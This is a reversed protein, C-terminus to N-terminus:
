SGSFIEPWKPIASCSPRWRPFDHWLTIEGHPLRSTLFSQAPLLVVPEGLSSVLQCPTLARVPAPVSSAPTVVLTLRWEAARGVWALRLSEFDHGPEQVGAMSVKGVVATAAASFLAGEGLDWTLRSADGSINRLPQGYAPEISIDVATVPRLARVDYAISLSGDTEVGAIRTINVEGWVFSHAISLNGEQELLVPGYTHPADRLRLTWNADDAHVGFITEADDVTLIERLRGDVSSFLIVQRWTESGTLGVGTREGWLVPGGAKLLAAADGSASHGLPPIPEEMITAPGNLLRLASALEGSRSTNLAYPDNLIVTRNRTASLAHYLHAEEPSVQFSFLNPRLFFDERPECTPKRVTIKSNAFVDEGPNRLALTSDTLLYLYDVRHKMLVTCPTTPAPEELVGSSMQVRIEGHLERAPAAPRYSVGPLGYQPDRLFGELGLDGSAVYSIEVAEGGATHRVRVGREDQAVSEFPSAFSAWIWGQLDEIPVTGRASFRITLDEGEEIIVSRVVEVEPWHFITSVEVRQETESLVAFKVPADFLRRTAGGFTIFDGADSTFMTEEHVTGFRAHFIQNQSSRNLNLTYWASGSDVTYGHAAVKKADEVEAIQDRFTLLFPSGSLMAERGAFGQIWWAYHYGLARGSEFGTALPLYKADPPLDDRLFELAELDSEDQYTYFSYAADLHPGFALSVFVVAAMPGMVRPDVLSRPIAPAAGVSTDLLVALGLLAPITAFYPMRAPLNQVSALLYYDLLFGFATAALLGATGEARRQVLRITSFALLSVVGAIVLPAAMRHVYTFGDYFTKFSQESGIGATTANTIYGWYAPLYPVSFVAALGGILLLRTPLKRAGWWSILFYATGVTVLFFSTLHHTGITLSTCLAVGAFTWPSPHMADRALLGIAGMAAAIALLNPVGYWGLIEATSPAYAVFAGALTAIVPGAFQRVMFYAAVATAVLTLAAALRLSEIPDATFMTLLAVLGPVIPPYRLPLIEGRIAHGYALVDGADASPVIPLASLLSYSIAAAIMGNVVAIAPFVAAVRKAMMTEVFARTNLTGLYGSRGKM